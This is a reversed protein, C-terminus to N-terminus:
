IRARSECICRVIVAGFRVPEWRDVSRISTWGEYLQLKVAFTWATVSNTARSPQGCGRLLLHSALACANMRNECLIVPDECILM